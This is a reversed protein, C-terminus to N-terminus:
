RHDSDKKQSSAFTMEQAEFLHRCAVEAKLEGTTRRTSCRSARFNTGYLPLTEM